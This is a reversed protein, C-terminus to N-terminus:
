LLVGHVAVGPCPVARGGVAPRRTRVDAELQVQRNLGPIDPPGVPNFSRRQPGLHGPDGREGENRRACVAAPSNDVVDELGLSAPIADLVNDPIRPVREALRLRHMVPQRLGPHM